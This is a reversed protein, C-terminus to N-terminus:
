NEDQCDHCTITNSFSHYSLFLVASPSKLSYFAYFVVYKQSNEFCCNRCIVRGCGPSLRHREASSRVNPAGTHERPTWCADDDAVKRRKGLIASPTNNNALAVRRPFPMPPPGAKSPPPEAADCTRSCVVCTPASCRPSMASIQFIYVVLRKGLVSSFPASPSRAAVRPALWTHSASDAPPPPPRHPSRPSV